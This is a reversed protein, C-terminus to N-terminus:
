HISVVSKVQVVRYLLSWEDILPEYVVDAIKIPKNSQNTQNMRKTPRNIISRDDEGGVEGRSDDGADEGADDGGVEGGAGVEDVGLGHM